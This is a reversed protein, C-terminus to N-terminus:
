AFSDSDDENESIDEVDIDIIEPFNEKLDKYEEFLDEKSLTLTDSLVKALRRGMPKMSAYTISGSVMGGLIPISKSISKAFIDKNVKIGIYGAIKKIIPYYFTKMMAKQPIKKLVQQSLGSSVFKIVSASGAVGFMVGLYILLENRAKETDMHEELWLDEHGYLYALEQALILSHGFFQTIDAPVTGIMALGGPVGAAFSVSSSKITRMHIVSKAINELKSSKIGSLYPGVEIIEKMQKETVLKEFKSKLFDERNVKVGPIKIVQDVIKEISYNKTKDTM